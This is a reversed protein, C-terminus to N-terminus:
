WINIHPSAAFEARVIVSQSQKQCQELCKTEHQRFLVNLLAKTTWSVMNRYLYHIMFGRTEGEKERPTLYHRHVPTHKCVHMNKSHGSKCKSYIVVRWELPPPYLSIQRQPKGTLRKVIGQENTGYWYSIFGWPWVGHITFPCQLADADHLIWTKKHANECYSEHHM